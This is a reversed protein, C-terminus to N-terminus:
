YYDSSILYVKRTMCELYENKLFEMAENMESLPVTSIHNKMRPDLYTAIFFDMTMNDRIVKLEERLRSMMSGLHAHQDKPDLLTNVLITLTRVYM